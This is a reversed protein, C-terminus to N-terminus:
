PNYAIRSLRYVEDRFAENIGMRQGNLMSPKAPNCFRDVYLRAAARAEDDTANEPIEDPIVGIIIGDGYQDYEFHTDNVPQGSWSDWGAKIMNPVQKVNQGCSHLDCFKGHSHLFDTVKRMAPVIIEEGVDPSFFCSKQGGWDDHICFGDVQPFHTLCKDFIRIYLDSLAFMIEKVADSQEDDVLAFAASEFDMWSILREFWGTQFWFQVYKDTDLYETNEKANTEWDWKDIDPFKIIRKWDNADLLTPAGPRVMAGNASGIFEWEIGFMDANIEHDKAAPYRSGDVVMGRAINDPIVRPAFLLSEGGMLQWIPEGRYLSKYAEKPSVPFKYTKVTQGFVGRSTTALEIESPDFPIRM